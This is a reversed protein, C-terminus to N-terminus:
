RIESSSQSRQKSSLKKSLHQTVLGGVRGMDPLSSILTIDKLSFDEIKEIKM